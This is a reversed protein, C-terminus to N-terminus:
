GNRRQRAAIQARRRELAAAQKETATKAAYRGRNARAVPALLAILADPGDDREDEPTERKPKIPLEEDLPDKRLNRLQKLFLPDVHEGGSIALVGVREGAEARELLLRAYNITERKYGAFPIATARLGPRRARAVKLFTRMSEKGAADYRADSLLELPDTVPELGEWAPTDALVDLALETAATVEIGHYSVAAIIWMGGGELPYGITVWKRDGWDWGLAILEGAPPPQEGQGAQHDLEVGLSIAAAIGAPPYLRDGTDVDWNGALLQERTVRDLNQLQARYAAQDLHPNDDLKAPIFVRRRAKEPTDVEDDPDVLREVYRTKIAEHSLGGPNSALRMRLPVSSLPDDADLAPRRIRSLLYRIDGAPIQTAEDVGIFQWASGQYRYKHRETALYGFQLIAPRWPDGTDFTWRFRGGDYKADTAGLWEWSRPILADALELDAFTRRLLLASYGPVHVYRLAGMLLADSKGGGAAGGYLAESAGYKEEAERGGLLEDLLLFAHQPATPRHPSYALTIGLGEVDPEAHAAM